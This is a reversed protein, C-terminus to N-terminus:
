PIMDNWYSRHERKFRVKEIRNEVSRLVETRIRLLLPLITSLLKYLIAELLISPFLSLWVGMAGIWANTEPSSIYLVISIAVYAPCSLLMVRLWQRTGFLTNNELFSNLSNM